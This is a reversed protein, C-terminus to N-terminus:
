RAKAMEPLLDALKVAQLEARAFDTVEALAAELKAKKRAQERIRPRALQLM